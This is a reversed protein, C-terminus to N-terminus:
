QVIVVVNFLEQRRQTGALHGGKIKLTMKKWRKPDLSAAPVTQTPQPAPNVQVPLSHIVDSNKANSGALSGALETKLCLTLKKRISPM